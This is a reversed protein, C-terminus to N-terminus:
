WVPMWSARGRTARRRAWDMRVSSWERSRGWSYSIPQNASQHEQHPEAGRGWERRRGNVPREQMEQIEQIEQQPTWTATQSTERLSALARSALHALAPRKAPSVGASRERGGMTKASLGEKLEKRFTMLSRPLGWLVYLVVLVAAGGSSELSGFAHRAFGAMGRCAGPGHTSTPVDMPRAPPAPFPRKAGRLVSFLFRLVSRAALAVPLGSHTFAYGNSEVAVDKLCTWRVHRPHLSFKERGPRPAAGWVEM